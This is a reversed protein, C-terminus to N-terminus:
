QYNWCLSLCFLLLPILNTIESSYVVVFLFAAAVVVLVLVVLLSFSHEHMPSEELVNCM